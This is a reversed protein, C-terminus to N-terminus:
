SNCYPCRAGKKVTHPMACVPCPIIDVERELIIPCITGRIHFVRDGKKYIQASENKLGLIVEVGGGDKAIYLEAHNDQRDRGVPETHIKVVKGTYERSFLDKPRAAKIIRYLSFLFWVGAVAAAILATGNDRMTIAIVISAIILIIFLSLKIIFDVRKTTAASEYREKDINM